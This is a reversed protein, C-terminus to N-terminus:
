NEAKVVRHLMGAESPLDRAAVTETLNLLEVHADDKQAGWAVALACLGLEDALPEATRLNGCAIHQTCRDLRSGRQTRLGLFDHVTPPEHRVREAGAQGVLADG